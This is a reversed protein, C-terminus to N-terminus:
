VELNRVKNKKLFSSQNSSLRLSFPQKTVPHIYMLPSSKKSRNRIGQSVSKTNILVEYRRNKYEFGELEPIDDNNQLKVFEEQKKTEKPTEKQIEQAFTSKAEQIKKDVFSSLEDLTLTVTQEKQEPNEQENNPDLIEKGSDLTSEDQVQEQSELTSDQVSTSTETNQVPKRILTRNQTNAM